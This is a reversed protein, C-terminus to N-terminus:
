NKSKVLKPKFYSGAVSAPADPTDDLELDEEDEAEAAAPTGPGEAKLRALRKKIADFDAM